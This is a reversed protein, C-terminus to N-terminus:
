SRRAARAAPGRARAFHAALAPIDDRRERLPPLRIPFVSIRYWLDERFRGEAVMAALDRHTAAVIRVDVTLPRTGGVREFSATRCCACCACRRRSRCSASRTSSCRAATPASSGARAAHAVAGTFSGREHGFLESDILEPPIAGCNVRLVPGGARPSRAHIARAVVEKGSGTEGLILVPADTPAVQEVREMVERLGAEAGVVSEGIDRRQLRALAADKEAEAAERLQQLERRRRETALVAAIPEAITALKRPELQRADSVVLVGLPESGATLPVLLWDDDAPEALGRLLDRAILSAGRPSARESDGAAIWTEVRTAAAPSLESRPHTPQAVGVAGRRITAVTDLHEGDFARVAVFEVHVADLVSGGVRALFADVDSALSAERWLVTELAM